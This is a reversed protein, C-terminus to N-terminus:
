AAIVYGWFSPPTNDGQDLSLWAVSRESTLGPPEAVLWEGLMTTKGFGAPASVLTLKSAVARDM